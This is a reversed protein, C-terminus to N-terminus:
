SVGPGLDEAQVFEIRHRSAFLSGDVAWGSLRCLGWTLAM